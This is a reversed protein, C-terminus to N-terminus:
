LVPAISTQTHEKVRRLVGKRERNTILNTNDSRVIITVDTQQTKMHHGNSVVTAHYTGPTATYAYEFFQSSGPQVHLSRSNFRRSFQKPLKISLTVQERLVQECCLKVPLTCTGSEGILIMSDPTSLTYEKPQHSATPLRKNHKKYSCSSMSLAAALALLTTQKM